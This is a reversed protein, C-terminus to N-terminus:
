ALQGIFPLNGHLGEHKLGYGVLTRADSTTSFLHFDAEFDTTRREPVDVLSAVLVRKAGLQLFQSVLYSEIVGSTTVDRVLLLDRGSVEFAVPYQIDLIEADDENPAYGVQIFEYRLPSNFARVLDAVFPVSGSLLSVFLPEGEMDKELTRGLDEVREQISEADFLVEIEQPDTSTTM